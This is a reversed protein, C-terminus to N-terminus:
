NTSIKGRIDKNWRRVCDKMREVERGTGVLNLSVYASKLTFLLSEAESFIKKFLPRNMNGIVVYDDSYLLYTANLLEKEGNPYTAIIKGIVEKDKNRELFDQLFLNEVRIQMYLEFDEKGATELSQRLIAFNGKGRLRSRISCSAYKNSQISGYTEWLGGKEGEFFLIENPFTMSDAMAFQAMAMLSVLAILSRKM